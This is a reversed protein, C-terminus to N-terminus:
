ALWGGFALPDRLAPLREMVKVFVDQVLDEVESRPVRALLIGHVMRGYRAYLEGFAARDGTQAAAIWQLETARGEEVGPDPNGAVGAFVAVSIPEGKLSLARM